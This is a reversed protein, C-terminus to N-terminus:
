EYDDDTEDNAIRFKHDPVDLDAEELEWRHYYTDEKEQHQHVSQQLLDSLPQSERMLLKHGDVAHHQHGGHDGGAAEHLLQDGCQHGYVVVGILGVCPRLQEERM